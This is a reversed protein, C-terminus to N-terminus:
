TIPTTSQHPVAGFGPLTMDELLRRRPLSPPLFGVKPGWFFAKPIVRPARTGRPQRKYLTPEDAHYFHTLSENTVTKALLWNGKGGWSKKGGRAGRPPSPTGREASRPRAQQSPEAPMWGMQQEEMEGTRGTGEDAPLPFLKTQGAAGNGRGTSSCLSAPLCDLPERHALGAAQWGERSGVRQSEAGARDEQLAAPAQSIEGAGDGVGASSNPTVLM